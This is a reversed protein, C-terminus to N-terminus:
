FTKQFSIANGYTNKHSAKKGSKKMFNFYQNHYSKGGNNDYCIVCSVTFTNQKVEVVIGTYRRNNNEFVVENHLHINSFNKMYNDRKTYQL